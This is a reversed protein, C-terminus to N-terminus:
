PAGFVADYDAETCCLPGDEAASQQRLWDDVHSQNKKYAYFGLAAAGLGVVFGALHDTNVGM